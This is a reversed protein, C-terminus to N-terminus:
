AMVYIYTICIQESPPKVMRHRFSASPHNVPPLTEDLLLKRLIQGASVMNQMSWSLLTIFFVALYSLIIIIPQQTILAFPVRLTDPRLTDPPYNSTNILSYGSSLQEPM